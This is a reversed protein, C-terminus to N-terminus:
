LELDKMDAKVKCQQLEHQVRTVVDELMQDQDQNRQMEQIDVQLRQNLEQQDTLEAKLDAMQEVKRKYVDIVAENRKLYVVQEKVEELENTLRDVNNENQRVILLKENELAAIKKEKEEMEKEYDHQYAEIEQRM